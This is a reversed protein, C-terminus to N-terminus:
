THIALRVREDAPNLLNPSPISRPIERTCPLTTQVRSPYAINDPGQSSHPSHRSLDRDLSVRTISEACKKIRTSSAARLREDKKCPRFEDTKHTCRTNRPSKLQILLTPLPQPQPDRTRTAQCRLFFLFDARILILWWSALQLVVRLSGLSSRLPLCHQTPTRRTRKVVCSTRM